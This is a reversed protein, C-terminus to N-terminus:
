SVHHKVQGRQRRAFDELRRRTKDFADHVTAYADEQVRHDSSAHDVVIEEGPVALHIILNFPNGQQHRHSLREVTVQCGIIRGYYSELWAMKKEIAQRLAESQDVGKFTIQLPNQM